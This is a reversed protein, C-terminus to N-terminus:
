KVSRLGKLAKTMASSLGGSAEARELYVRRGEPTLEWGRVNGLSKRRLKRAKLLNAVIYFDKHDIKGSVPGALGLAENVAVSSRWWSVDETAWEELYVDLADDLPTPVRCREIVAEWEIVARQDKDTNEDFYALEGAELAQVAEGWIQGGDLEIGKVDIPNARTALTFLPWVRRGQGNTADTIIEEENSSGWLTFSRKSDESESEYAKRHTDVEVTMAAKFAAVDKARKVCDMEAAEVILRGNCKEIIDRTSSIDFGGNTFLGPGVAEAMAKFAKGKGEGGPGIVVPMSDAKTGPTLVRQVAQLLMARSVKRIYESGVSTDIKLYKVLWGSLREVGDWEGGL